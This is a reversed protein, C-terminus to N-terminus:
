LKTKLLSEYIEMTRDSMLDTTFRKFSESFANEALKKAMKKDELLYQIQLALELADPELIYSGNNHPLIKFIMGTKLHEVLENLGPVDSIIIPIKNQIMELVVYSCQEYRSPIVGIDSVKYINYLNTGHLYGTIFIRGYNNNILPLYQDYEGKGVIVLKLTPYKDKIIEFARFLVDLGKRYQLLGTYLILQDDPQFGLEKRLSIKNEGSLTNKCHSLGNYIVSIKSPDINHQSCLVRRAFNTVCIIHDSSRIINEFLLDENFQM